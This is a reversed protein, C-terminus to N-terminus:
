AARRDGAPGQGRATLLHIAATLGHLAQDMHQTEHLLKLNDALSAQLKVLEGKDAFVGALQEVVKGLEGTLASWQAEAAQAVARHDARHLELSELLRLSREERMQDNTEFRTELKELAEVWIKSQQQQWSQLAGALLEMQRGVASEVTQVTAQNAAGLASLFPSLNAPVVEFRNLLEREARSDVASVIARETREGLFLCFMMTTAATLAVTTTNFATGMEAVVTPLKEGIDGGAEGGLATGFHVVTGLFGFMPTVWCLFRTLSYNTQTKEFDQDELARLYDAFDEASGKEQLHALAQALRKGLRSERLWQPKKKLQALLSAANSVPERGQRRPLLDHRLALLERPFTSM